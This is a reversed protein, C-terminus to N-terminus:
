ETVAPLAGATRAATVQEAWTDCWDNDEALQDLQDLTAPLAKLVVIAQDPYTPMAHEVIWAALPDDAVDRLLQEWATRRTAEYVEWATRETAKYVEWAPRETAEYLAVAGAIDVGPTAGLLVPSATIQDTM